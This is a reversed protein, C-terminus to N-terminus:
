NGEAADEQAQMMEYVIQSRQAHPMRRQDFSYVARLYAWDWDTLRAPRAASSFINLISEYAGADSEPDVQTLAVMALYDALQGITIGTLKGADVIIIASWVEDRILNTIRSNSGRVNPPGYMSEPLLIAVNGAEDVPMTIQWWRVPANTSKFAELAHLGQTTGGAGGWPRFLRPQEEALYSAFARGDAAFIVSVNARCGPEGVDLGVELAVQSILDIIPQALEPPANQVGVCIEDNWRAIGFNRSVPDAIEAIFNRTYERPTM